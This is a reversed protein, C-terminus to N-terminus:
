SWCRRSSARRWTARCCSASCRMPARARLHVPQRPHGRHGRDARGAAAPRAVAAPRADLRLAPLDPRHTSYTGALYDDTLLRALPMCRRSRPGTATAKSRPRSRARARPADGRPGQPGRHGGEPRGRAPHDARAAFRITNTNLSGALGRDTTLLVILARAVAASRWCRTSRARRARVRPRRAGRRDQRAYPRSQLTADQARKLKSAAVFQMARTIQKINRVSAIRRRIERQSPM